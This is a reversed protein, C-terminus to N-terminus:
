ANAPGKAALHRRLLKTVVRVGERSYTGAPVVEGQGMDALRIAHSSAGWLVTTHDLGFVRGIRPYSWGLETRLRYFIEHRARAIVNKRSKDMISATDVGRARAVDMIIKRCREPAVIRRPRPEIIYPTREVHTHM